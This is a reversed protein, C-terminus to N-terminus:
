GLIPPRYLSSGLSAPLTSSYLDAILNNVILLRLDLQGSLAPLSCASFSCHDISQCCDQIDNVTLLSHKVPYAAHQDSLLTDSPASHVHTVPHHTTSHLDTAAVCSAFSVSLSQGLFVLLLLATIWYPRRRISLM